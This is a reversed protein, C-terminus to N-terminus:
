SAEKACIVIIIKQCDKVASCYVDITVEQTLAVFAALDQLYTLDTKTLLCPWNQSNWTLHRERILLWTTYGAKTYRWSTHITLPVTKQLVFSLIISSHGLTHIIHLIFFVSHM